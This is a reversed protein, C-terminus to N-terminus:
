RDDDIIKQCFYDIEYSFLDKDVSIQYIKATRDPHFFLNLLLYSNPFQVTKSLPQAAYRCLTSPLWPELITLKGHTGVITTQNPLDMLISTVLHASLEDNFKIYALAHVDVDNLGREGFARIKLPELDEDRCIIKALNRAMSMTYCGVDLLAGGGKEKLYIRHSPLPSARYGFTCSIGNITGLVGSDLLEKVKQLQPHYRYMFGELLFINSRKAESFMTEIDNVNTAIPKEVLIHKGYQAALVAVQAHDSNLNAIYVADVCEDAVLDLYNSYFVSCAFRDALQKSREISQSAIAQLSGLSSFRLANCFVAAIQGAGIIGWRIPQEM